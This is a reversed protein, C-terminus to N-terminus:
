GTWEGAQITAFLGAMTSSRMGSCGEADVTSGDAAGRSRDVKDAKGDNLRDKVKGPEPDVILSVEGSRFDLLHFGRALSVVAGGGDKRLAM